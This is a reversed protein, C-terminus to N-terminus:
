KVATCKLLQIRGFVIVVPVLFQLSNAFVGEREIVIRPGDSRLHDPDRCLRVALFVAVTGISVVNPFKSPRVASSTALSAICSM